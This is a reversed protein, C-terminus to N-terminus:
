QRSLFIGSGLSASFVSCAWPSWSRKLMMLVSPQGSGGALRDDAGGSGDPPPWRMLRDTRGQPLGHWVRPVLMKVMPVPHFPPYGGKAPNLRKLATRLAPRFLGFDRCGRQGAM